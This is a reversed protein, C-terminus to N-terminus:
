KSRKGLYLWRARAIARPTIRAANVVKYGGSRVLEGGALLMFYPVIRAYRSWLRRPESCLRFLWELGCRQMWIPAQRKTGSLFDFAAGVGIMVPATVRGVHEAMWVEQKPTSLGVWLIDPKADNIRQILAQDEAPTLRRFPPSIAGAIKLDRYKRTLVRQLKDTVGEAGGYYFQKYGRQSSLETIERMLDPGYVRGVHQSRVWRLFWVLPMGDPTVMGAENHISRLRLDTRSEIVGHVGTVCVYQQARQEVWRAITDVAVDMTVASVNVGLVDAKHLARSSSM